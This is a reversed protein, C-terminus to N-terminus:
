RYVFVKYNGIIKTKKPAGYNKDLVSEKLGFNESKGIIIFQPHKIDKYWQSNSLWAYPLISGRADVRVQRVKVNQNSLLTFPAANWYGAFGYHLNHKELFKIVKIYGEESAPAAEFSRYIFGVFIAAASLALFVYMRRSKFISLLYGFLIAVFVPIDLLYRSAGIDIPETSFVFAFCSLLIAILSLKVIAPMDKQEPRKIHVALLIVALVILLAHIIDIITEYSLLQRGFFNSQTVALISYLFLYINHGFRDLSVFKMQNHVVHYGGEAGIIHVTVKALVAAMVSSVIMKIHSSTFSNINPERFIMLLSYCVIPAVGVFLAYPDGVIAFYLLLFSYVYKFKIEGLHYVYFALVIFFITMVHIPSFLVGSKYFSEPCALFVTLSILSIYYSNSINKVIYFVLVLLSAYIVAPTLHYIIKGSIGLLTFFVDLQTDLTYFTDSPLTWGHLIINGNVISEAELINAVGDSNFGVTKGIHFYLATLISFFSFYTIYRYKTTIRISNM